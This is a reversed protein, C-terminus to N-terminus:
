INEIIRALMHVSEHLVKPTASAFGLILGARRDEGLYYQSLGSMGIGAAAAQQRIALEDLGATLWTAIHIGCATPGISLAGALEHQLADVLADRREAYRSRMRRIHRTFHGQEIFDTVTMQSVLPPYLDMQAKVGLFVDVLDPPVILYGLRLAPFLVKSFTGVYIVRGNTDLGQLAALPRGSYRFESDYDDEVIWAGSEAAWKLLHLRRRLSMTYGLPFHHSPTVFAVRAEPNVAEGVTVDLGEDDVPVLALNGVMIRAVGHAGGYGPEELWVGDGRNFLARSALYLGKQSGSTVIVQEAACQVGRATRVYDAIAARLPGYGQADQKPGLQSSSVRRNARAAVQTWLTLPFEDLGPKGVVFPSDLHPNGYADNTQNAEHRDRFYRGVPRLADGLRSVHRTSSQRAVTPPNARAVLLDDPLQRTVYTGSGVGAELYGEAILQEFADKVTNRSLSLEAALDRSSPLRTGTALQRHLIATRIQEYVQQYLPTSTTRDVTLLSAILDKM